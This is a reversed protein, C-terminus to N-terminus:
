IEGRLEEAKGQHLKTCANEIAVIYEGIPPEKPVLAFNPGHSLAKIQAQTLPTTSLNKVWTKTNIQDEATNNNQNATNSHYGSHIGHMNCEEKQKKKQILRNFKDIQRKQTKLHQTERGIEIFDKCRAMWHTDLVEELHVMCTDRQSKFMNISNNISRVRENLLAREAKHIIQIGKPTKINKILCISVPVLDESLCRLTFRQHNAFDAM